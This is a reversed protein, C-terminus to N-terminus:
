LKRDDANVYMIGKNDLKRHMINKKGRPKELEGTIQLILMINGKINGFWKM